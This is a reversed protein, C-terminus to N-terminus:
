ELSLKSVYKHCRAKKSLVSRLIALDFVLNSSLTSERYDDGNSDSQFTDHEPLITKRKTEKCSLELKKINKKNTVTHKRKRFPM